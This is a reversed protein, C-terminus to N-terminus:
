RGDEPSGACARLWDPVPLPRLASRDVWVHTVRGFAVRAGDGDRTFAHAITLSTRGVEAVWSRVRLREDLRVPALYSCESRVVPLAHGGGFIASIPHGALDLFEGFSREMWEHYSAYYINVPDMDRLAVRFRM